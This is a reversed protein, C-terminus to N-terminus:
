RLSFYEDVSSQLIERGCGICLYVVSEVSFGSRKLRGEIEKHRFRSAGCYPCLFEDSRVLSPPATAPDTEMLKGNDTFM